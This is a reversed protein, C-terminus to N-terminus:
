GASRTSPTDRLERVISLFEDVERAAEEPSQDDESRALWEDADFPTVGLEAARRELASRAEASERARDNNPNPQSM